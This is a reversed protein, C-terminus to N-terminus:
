ILQSLKYPNHPMSIDKYCYSYNLSKPWIHSKMGMSGCRLSLCFVLKGWCLLDNLIFGESIVMMKSSFDAPAPTSVLNPASNVSYLQTAARHPATATCVKLFCGWTLEETLLGVFFAGVLRRRWLLLLLFRSSRWYIPTWCGERPHLRSIPVALSSGGVRMSLTLLHTFWLKEIFVVMNKIRWLICNILEDTHLVEM